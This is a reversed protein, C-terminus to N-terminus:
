SCINHWFLQISDFFPKHVPPILCPMVNKCRLTPIIVYFFSLNAMRQTKNALKTAYHLTPATIGQEM